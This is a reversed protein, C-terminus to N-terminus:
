DEEPKEYGYSYGGYSKQGYSGRGQGLGYGKNKEQWKNFEEERKEYEDQEGYFGFQGNGLHAFGEPLEDYESQGERGRGNREEWRSSYKQDLENLKRLYGEDSMYSGAYRGRSKNKKNYRKEWEKNLDMLKDKYEEDQKWAEGYGYTEEEYGYM